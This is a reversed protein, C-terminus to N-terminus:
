KLNESNTLLLKVRKALVTSDESASKSYRKKVVYPTCVLPVQEGKIRWPYIFPDNYPNNRM